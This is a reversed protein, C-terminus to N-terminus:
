IAIISKEGTNTYVLRLSYDFGNGDGLNIDLLILSADDNEFFNRAEKVSYEGTLRKDGPYLCGYLLM